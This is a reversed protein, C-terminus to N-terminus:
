RILGGGHATLRLAMCPMRSAANARGRGQPAAANGFSGRRRGSRTRATRPRDAASVVVGTSAGRRRSRRRGVPDASRSPHTGGARTPRLAYALPWPRGRPWPPSGPAGPASLPTAPPRKRRIRSRVVCLPGSPRRLDAARAALRDRPSDAEPGVDETPEDSGALPAPARPSGEPGVRGDDALRAQGLVAHGPVLHLGPEGWAAPLALGREIDLARSVVLEARLAPRGSVRPVPLGLPRAREWAVGRFVAPLTVGQSPVGLLGAHPAPARDTSPTSRPM